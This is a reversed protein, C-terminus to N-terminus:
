VLPVGALTDRETQGNATTIVEQRDTKLLRLPAAVEFTGGMNEIRKGTMFVKGAKLRDVLADRNLLVHDSWGPGRREYARVWLIQGTSTYRVAEVVGDYKQKGM